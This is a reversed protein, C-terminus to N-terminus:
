APAPCAARLLRELAAGVAAPRRAELGARAARARRLRLADDALLREVALAFALTDDATDVDLGAHEVWPTCVVVAGCAVAELLKIPMGCVNRLPVVAVKARRILAGLDTVDSAVEVGDLHLTSAGRGAVLVSVDPDRKRLLPVIESALWLAAERNPPYRMNGTFIVDVDRDVPDAAAAHEEWALPLLIPAPLEPLVAIDRPSVAAQQAVWGAARTEHASLLQAELRLLLRLAPNRSLGARNTMSRSLADVHDLVTPAPLRGPLCRITSVLAVDCTASASIAARHLARPSMWGVQLPRGRLLSAVSSLVREPLDVSIMRVSAVGQLSRLAATSSPRGATLVTVDHAGNLMEIQQLTRLQDGKRGREPFRGCVVLVNV